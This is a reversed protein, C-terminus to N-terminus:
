LAGPALWTIVTTAADVPEVLAVSCAHVAAGPPPQSLCPGAMGALTPESPILALGLSYREAVGIPLKV